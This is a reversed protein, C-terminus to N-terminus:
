AGRVKRVKKELFPGVNKPENATKRRDLFSKKRARLSNWPTKQKLKKGARSKKKKAEVGQGGTTQCSAPAYDLAAWYLKTQQIVGGGV